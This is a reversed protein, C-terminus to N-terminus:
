KGHKKITKKLVTTRQEEEGDNLTLEEEEEGLGQLRRMNEARELAIEEKKKKRERKAEEEKRRAIEQKEAFTQPKERKRKSGQRPPLEELIINEEYEDDKRSLSGRNYIEETLAKIMAAESGFENLVLAASDPYAHAAFYIFEETATRLYNEGSARDFEAIEEAGAVAAQCDFLGFLREIILRADAEVLGGEINRLAELAEPEGHGAAPASYNVATPRNDVLAMYAEAADTVQNANVTQDGDVKGLKAIIDDIKRIYLPLIEAREQYPRTLQDDSKPIKDNTYFSYNEPSFRTKVGELADILNQVTTEAGHPLLIRTAANKMLQESSTHDGMSGADKLSDSRGVFKINGDQIRATFNSPAPRTGRPNGASLRASVEVWDGLDQVEIDLKAKLENSCARFVTPFAQAVTYLFSTRQDAIQQPALQGSIESSADYLKALEEAAAKPSNPLGDLKGKTILATELARLVALTRGEGKGTVNSRSAGSAKSKIGTDLSAGPLSDRIELYHSGLQELSLNRFRASEPNALEDLLDLLQKDPAPRDKRFAPYKKLQAFLLAMNAKADAENRGAVAAAIVERNASFATTHQGQSGGHKSKPRGAINLETIIGDDDRKARLQVESGDPDAPAHWIYGVAHDKQGFSPTNQQTFLNTVLPQRNIKPLINFIFNLQQTNLAQSNQYNQSRPDNDSYDM